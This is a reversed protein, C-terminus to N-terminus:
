NSLSNMFRQMDAVVRFVKEVPGAEIEEGDEGKTYRYLNFKFAFRSVLNESSLNL